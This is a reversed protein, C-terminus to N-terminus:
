YKDRAELRFRACRPGPPHWIGGAVLERSLSSGERQEGSPARSLQMIDESKVTDAPVSRGAKLQNKRPFRARPMIRQGENAREGLVRISERMLPCQNQMKSDSPELNEGDGETEQFM